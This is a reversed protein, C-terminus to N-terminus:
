FEWPNLVAVGMAKFHGINRTVVMMDHILATAAILADRGPRPNAVHLVVCRQAVAADIALSRDM